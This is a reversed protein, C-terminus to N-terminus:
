RVLSRLHDVDGRLPSFGYSVMAVTGGPQVVLVVPSGFVGLERAVHRPERRPAPAAAGSSARTLSFREDSVLVRPAGDVDGWLDAWSTFARHVPDDGTNLGVLVIDDRAMWEAQLPRLLEVVDGVAGDISHWVVVVLWRDRFDSLRAPRGAHTVLEIDPLPAGVRLGQESAAAKLPVAWDVGEPSSVFMLALFVVGALASTFLFHRMVGGHYVPGSRDVM